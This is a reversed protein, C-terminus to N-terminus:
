EGGGGYSDLVDERSWQKFLVPSSAPHYPLVDSYGPIIAEVVPFGIDPHTFDVVLFDKGLQRCIEKAKEIDDLCDDFCEGRDFPVLDGEKLFDARAYPVFGFMFSSLYNDGDDPMCKLARFDHKLVREQEDLTGDIFEDLRRGQAYETFTRMLADELNFSAGVKFFHHFQFSDPINPDLFYAGICPLIGGFSLDKIFVEIGKDRVFEIQSRIVPNEITEIDITPMVLRQKLVTIHARREFIENTAHVLAEELRNGAALGNPGSIRRVYEIPVKFTRGDLLSEADVWYQATDLNKIRGLVSPTASAVHPLLAEIPLANDLEDQHATVYGPLQGINRATLWEAGEALAGAKSLIASVGKGMARFNLGDIFMAAWYLSDSVKEELMRYEYQGSLLSELRAVTNEPTECKGYGMKVCRKLEM